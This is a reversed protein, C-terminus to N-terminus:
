GALLYEYIWKSKLNDGCFSM